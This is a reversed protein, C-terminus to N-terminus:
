KPAEILVSLLLAVGVVAAIAFATLLGSAWYRVDARYFRYPTM